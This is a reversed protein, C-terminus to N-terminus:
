CGEQWALTRYTFCRVRGTAREVKLARTDQPSNIGGAARVSTLYLVGEESAAGNRHFTLAPLQEVVKTFSIANTMGNIATAGGRDFKVREPLQITRLEEGTDTQRNNNADYLVFFKDEDEDFMLVYDHQRLIAQGRASAVASAVEQIAADLQFRAIDIRPIVITMLIGAVSLVILLEVLTFGVRRRHVAIRAPVSPVLQRLASNARHGGRALTPLVIETVTTVVLTVVQEFFTLGLSDARPPYGPEDHPRWHGFTFSAPRM